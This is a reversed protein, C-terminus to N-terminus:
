QVELGALYETVWVKSFMKNRGVLLSPIEGESIKRSITRDSKGLLAVLEKMTYYLETVGAQTTTSVDNANLTSGLKDEKCAGNAQQAEPSPLKRAPKKIRKLYCSVPPLEELYSSYILQESRSFIVVDTLLEQVELYAKALCVKLLHFIYVNSLRDVNCDATPRTFEEMRYNEARMKEAIRLLCSTLHKDLIQDRWYSRVRGDTETGLYARVDAVYGYTEGLLLRQYYACKENIPAPFQFAFEGVGKLESVIQQQLRVSFRHGAENEPLEPNMRGHMFDDFLPFYYNFEM